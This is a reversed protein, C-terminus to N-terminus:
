ADGGPVAAAGQRDCMAAFQELTQFILDRPNLRRGIAKEVRALVRMSLLSHGGLDFFNDRVSVREAGLAEMWIGGVLKEMPTRPDVHETTSGESRDLRALANRDIKGNPTLPLEDLVVFAAPVMYGPLRDRLATRLETVTLEFGAALVVYAALRVGQAGDERPLVVASKVGPLELLQSEIEALEIRFGRVKVQHDARGLFDLVGDARWRVLDGTRYLREGNSGFPNPVFREATLDPRNRYGRALGAGGIYLEGTVGLPAPRLHGDLVYLQTNGIPRGLPAVGEVKDVPHLASWITTETPGYLNFLAGARRLLEEALGAALAEGGCLAKIGAAKWDAEVLLRWTAPTAQMVTAGSRELQEALRDGDTATDRSVIELRGGQVLPLYIELGAIDFSLTTVSLLVDRPQLGPQEAMSELFNSLAGHPIQVGKPRGTSGSTYILYALQEAEVRVGPDLASEGALDASDVCLVRASTAPLSDRLPEQTLLVRARADELMYALREQPYSPDLPLYAGGAKLVGLLAVVMDLSREVAIGVLTEPGVGISRLRHALQNARRNLAAYSLTQGEFSVAAAEPTRAAQAAIREHVAAPAVERTTANWTELVTRLETEDLIPLESLRLDPAAVAAALLNRLHAGLRTIRDADFLDCNYEATVFLGQPTETVFLTLEFRSTGPDVGYSRLSLDKLDLAAAPANQIVLMVQFLPSRSPNREPRLEEVLKEFPTEQHAYADLAVERVRALAERFTPDGGLQTRLVLTNAFLGVVNELEARPRGAIPTGVSIDDQGSYRKLLTQFAALLVMFLTGKENRALRRVGDTLEPELVFHAQAGRFTQLPPRPRDIPLDLAPVAALQRRWYALDSEQAGLVRRQWQAFDAFQLSPERLPSAEGRQFARYLQSLEGILIGLSWGDAAVHHLTVLLLHDEDDLRVLTCRFLPGKELDFPRRAEEDAQRRAEAAREEPPLAGLDLRSVSFLDASGIRQVPQGDVVEFTTRLSEHRRWLEALSRELAPADLPGRLQLAGPVHYAASADE